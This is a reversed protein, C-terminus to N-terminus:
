LLFAFDGHKKILKIKKSEISKIFIQTSDVSLNENILKACSELFYTEEEKSPFKGYSFHWKLKLIDKINKCKSFFNLIVESEKLVDRNGPVYNCIEIYCMFLYPFHTKLKTFFSDDIKGIFVNKLEIVQLDMNRTLDELEIVNGRNFDRFEITKLNSFRRLVNMVRSMSVDSGDSTIKLKEVKPCRKALKSFTRFCTSEIIITKLKQPFNILDFNPREGEYNRKNAFNGNFQMTTANILKELIANNRQDCEGNFVFEEVDMYREEPLPIRVEPNPDKFKLFTKLDIKERNWNELEKCNFRM